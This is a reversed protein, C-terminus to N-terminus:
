FISHNKQLVIKNKLVLTNKKLQQKVVEIKDESKSKLEKM